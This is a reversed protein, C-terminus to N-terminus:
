DSTAAKMLREVYKALIDVELNVTDGVRRHSLNTVELTHPIIAVWFQETEVGAVTLSIGDVAISGKEVVYRMLAAPAAITVRTANGDPDLAAIRGVGDVHGQVIHGDLRDGVALPRELNVRDGSRLRGLGTRALTEPVADFGLRAESVVVNTVTLCVGNVAVSDGVRAGVAVLPAVIELRAGESSAQVSAVRGSEEVIGTFMKRITDLRCRTRVPECGGSSSPGGGPEAAGCGVVGGAGGRAAALTRHTRWPTGGTHFVIPVTSTLRLPEGRRHGQEWERWEEQWQLTAYLLTRLPMAPDAESQHEVLLCVLLPPADVEAPLWPLRILLDAERHRWDDLLFTRPLIELRSFDLRAAVDPLLAAVLDRLNGPDSLLQRFARDPFDHLPPEQFLSM